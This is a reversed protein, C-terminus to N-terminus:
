SMSSPLAASICALRFFFVLLHRLVLFLQGYLLGTAHTALLDGALSSVLEVLLDALLAALLDGTLATVLEVLLDAAHAALLDRALATVFEVLLDAVLAPLADALQDLLSLLALGSGHAVM